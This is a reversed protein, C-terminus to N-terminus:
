ASLVEPTPTSLIQRFACYLVLISLPITLLIGIGVLLLGAMLLIFCFLCLGFITFWNGRVLARSAELAEWFTKGHLMVFLEAFVYAVALYIGPILLLFLGLTVFIIKLLYVLVLQPAMNMLPMLDNFSAKGATRIKEAILVVAPLLLAAALNALLPGVFPLKALVYNAVCYGFSLVLFLEPGKLFIQWADQLAKGVRIEIQQTM